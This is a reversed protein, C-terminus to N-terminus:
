EREKNLINKAFLWDTLEDGVPHGRKEWHYYAVERIQDEKIPVDKPDIHPVIGVDEEPESNKNLDEPLCHCCKDYGAALANYLTDFTVINSLSILKVYYCNNTHVEKTKKNAKFMEKM